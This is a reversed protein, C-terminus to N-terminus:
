ILNKKFEINYDEFAINNKCGDILCFTIHSIHETWNEIQKIQETTILSNSQLIGESNIAWTKTLHCIVWISSIIDKRINNHSFEDSLVYLANVIKHFNDESLKTNFPRLMGIFGNEWKPNEIDLHAGSQFLLEEIAAQEHNM